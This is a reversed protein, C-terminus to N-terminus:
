GYHSDPYIKPRVYLATLKKPGSVFGHRFLVNMVAPDADLGQELEAIYSGYLGPNFLLFEPYHDEFREMLERGCIFIVQGARAQMKGKISEVTSPPCEHPSIVYVQAVREDTGTAVNAIPSDFAEEAQIYVTRAGQNSDASGTIKENKIVCAVLQQHDFPGVWNFVIDKGCEQAGHTHRVNTVNPMKELLSLVAERLEAENKFLAIFRDLRTQTTM